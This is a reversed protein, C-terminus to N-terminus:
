RRDETRAAPLGRPGYIRALAELPRLGFARMARYIGRMAPRADCTITIAQFLSM